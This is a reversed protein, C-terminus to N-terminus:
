PYVLFIETQDNISVRTLDERSRWYDLPRGLITENWSTPEKIAILFLASPKERDRPSYQQMADQIYFNAIESKENTAFRSVERNPIEKLLEGIIPWERRHPFGMLFTDPHGGKKTFGFIKKDKWPFEPDHDVFIAHSTIASSVLGIIM